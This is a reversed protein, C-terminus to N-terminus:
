AEGFSKVCNRGSLKAKYLAIDSTKLLGEKDSCHQPFTSIGLSCSMSPMSFGNALPMRISEFTHRIREAISMATQTDTSPLVVIFEDGGYRAILDTKRICNPVLEVFLTLIQDGVAHGYTDNITKFYDIDIMIVSLLQKNMNTYSLEKDLYSDLFNRNFVKTLNDISAQIHLLHENKTKIIIVAALILIISILIGTLSGFFTLLRQQDTFNMSLSYLVLRDICIYLLAGLLLSLAILVSFDLLTKKSKNLRLM